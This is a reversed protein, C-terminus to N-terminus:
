SRRGYVLAPPAIGGHPARFCEDASHYYKWYGGRRDIARATAAAARRANM